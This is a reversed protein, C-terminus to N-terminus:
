VKLRQKVEELSLGKGDAIERKAREVRKKDKSTLIKDAYRVTFGQDDIFYAKVENSFKEKQKDLYDAYDEEFLFIINGEHDVRWRSSTEERVVDRIIERLEQITIDGISRDIVAKVMIDGGAVFSKNIDTDSLSKSYIQTEKKKVYFWVLTISHM